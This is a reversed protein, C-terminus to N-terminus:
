LFNMRKHSVGAVFLSLFVKLECSWDSSNKRKNARINLIKSNSLKLTLKATTPAGSININDRPIAETCYDNICISSFLEIEFVKVKFPEEISETGLKEVADEFHINVLIGVFGYFLKRLIRPAGKRFSVLYSSALLLRGVGSAATKGIGGWSHAAILGVAVRIWRFQCCSVAM